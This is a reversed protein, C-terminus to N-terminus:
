KVPKAAPIAPKPQKLNVSELIPILAPNKESYAVCDNLLSQLINANVQAAGAQQGLSRMTRSQNIFQICVVICVLLVVGLAGTLVSNITGPKM